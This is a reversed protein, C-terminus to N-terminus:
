VLEVEAVKRATHQHILHLLVSSSLFNHISRFLRLPKGPLSFFDELPRDDRRTNLLKSNLWFLIENM